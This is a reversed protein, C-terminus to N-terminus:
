RVALETVGRLVTRLHPVEHTRLGARQALVLMETDFFWNNDEVLPLLEQAVDRRIAKFGCQADSFSARLSTRLILNYSRSIFERKPGRVM